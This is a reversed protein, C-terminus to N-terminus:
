AWLMAGRLMAWGRTRKRHCYYTLCPAPAPTRVMIWLAAMAIADFIFTNHVVYYRAVHRGRMVIQKKLNHRLLFGIHFQLLMDLPYVGAAFGAGRGRMLLMPVANFLARHM